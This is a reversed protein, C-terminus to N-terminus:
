KMRDLTRYGIAEALHSTKIHESGELDAITRAIKLIKDHGRASFGLTDMTQKLLHGCEKDLACHTKILPASMQANAYTDHEGAFRQRQLVRSQTARKKIAASPEPQSDAAFMDATKLAPAELHIDIRDLLPGSIKNLYRDVQLASCSCPKKGGMRFGCPCPNMSAVLMFKAPFKLTRSARAITVCHDELPQRLVELAHRSFEPLEDLFLIGNHALSVEGPRPSSGGGVLAIDSATHHPCRFPREYRIGAFTLLGAVSHIKTVELAEQFSMDPLIGAMRKAMM